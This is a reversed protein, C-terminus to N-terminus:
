GVISFANSTLIGGGIGQLARFLILQEINQALGSLLSTLAFLGVGIMLLNRRGFQDSLKGSIPVAITTTLLYATVVWSLENFANFDEVIRGLATAIITQDLAAMLLGSMVAIMVLIKQRLPISHLM